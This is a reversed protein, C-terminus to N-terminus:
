RRLCYEWIYSSNTENIIKRNKKIFGLEKPHNNKYTQSYLRKVNPILQKIMKKLIFHMRYEKKLYIARVICITDFIIHYIVFGVFKSGARALSIKAGDELYSFIKGEIMNMNCDLMYNLDSGDTELWFDRFLIALSLFYEV